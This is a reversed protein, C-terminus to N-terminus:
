ENRNYRIIMMTIDDTQPEDQSFERIKETVGALIDGVQLGKLRKLEGELREESFLEHRSNMAETVGDSYIFIADGKNLVVRKSQFSFDEMVGLALGDTTEVAEIEGSARIIYPPNHGGNCYEITGDKINFIGLFLTVFLLSPNDTSLDQNVQNLIVEPAMDKTARTKILTKTVAMFLSAPVGKGSVDGVNFCLHDDDLFFFDFLDGGVERAPEITAYLDFEPMEPFPPFIKPLIGMQIDHAIQLESEIREKAATTETLDAIYQKLSQKMYDFSHALQGVEDRTRIEPISVDLNGTAIDETAGALASLPRTISRAIFVIVVFLFIFGLVGLIIVIKNLRVVDAMLEDQPFLVGLSLKSSSLPAYVMWCLKGTLLSRFPVFGSKGRIMERGIRRLEEDGRAEAQSFITENMVFKKQPHTVFTGNQSILFGYGTKAIKISAVIEQLWSLSVDATIIGTIGKKGEVTRYFPVSYTSMIINGGGEDFYPETWVPRNLEKPIQYWDQFFYKYSATGLNSYRIKGSSKYFYPAYREKEGDYIWPEFAVASGYIEKNNQVIHKLLNNLEEGTCLSQDLVCAMNEPVKEVSSLVVDIQNVTARALNMANKEINKIIIKRSYMYSYGFILLFILTVSSLILLILKFALGRNKM